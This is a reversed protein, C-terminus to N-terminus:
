LARSYDSWKRRKHDMKNYSGVLDRYNAVPRLDTPVRGDRWRDIISLCFIWIVEVIECVIDFLIKAIDRMKM